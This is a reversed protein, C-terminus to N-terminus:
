KNYVGYHVRMMGGYFIGTGVDDQFYAFMNPTYWIRVYNSGCEVNPFIPMWYSYRENNPVTFGTIMEVHAFPTGGNFPVNNITTNWNGDTTLPIDYYGLRRSMIVSDDANLTGDPKFIQWGYDAM